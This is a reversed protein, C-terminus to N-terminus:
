WAAGRGSLPDCYGVAARGSRTRRPHRQQRSITASSSASSSAPAEGVVAGVAELHLAGVLDRVDRGADGRAELQELARDLGARLQDDGVMAQEPVAVIRAHDARPALPQPRQERGVDAEGGVVQREVRVRTEAVVRQDRGAEPEDIRRREAQVAPARDAHARADGPSPIAAASSTARTAASVSRSGSANRPPGSRPACADPDHRAAAGAGDLLRDGGPEVREDGALRGLPRAASARSAPIWKM